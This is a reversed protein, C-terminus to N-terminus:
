LLFASVRSSNNARTKSAAGRMIFPSNLQSSGHAIREYVIQQNYQAFHHFNRVNIKLYLLNTM